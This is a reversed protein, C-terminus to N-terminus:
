EAISEAVCPYLHMYVPTLSYSTCRVLNMGEHPQLGDLGQGVWGKVDAPASCLLRVGTLPSDTIQILLIIASLQQGYRGGAM